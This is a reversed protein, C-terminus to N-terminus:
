SLKSCNILYNIYTLLLFKRGPTAFTPLDSSGGEKAMSLLINFM